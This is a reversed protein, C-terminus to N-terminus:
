KEFVMKRTAKEWNANLQFAIGLALFISPEDNRLEVARLLYEIASDFNNLFRSCQGCHVLHEM